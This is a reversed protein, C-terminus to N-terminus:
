ILRRHTLWARFALSECLPRCRILYDDPVGAGAEFLVYLYMFIKESIM